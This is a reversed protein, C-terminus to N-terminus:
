GELLGLELARLWRVRDRVGLEALVATVHNEVTGPALGPGPGPGPVLLFLVRSRQARARPAGPPAGGTVPEHDHQGTLQTM